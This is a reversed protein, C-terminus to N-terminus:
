FDNREGHHNKRDSLIPATKIIRTLKAAEEDLLIVNKLIEWPNVGGNSLVRSTM